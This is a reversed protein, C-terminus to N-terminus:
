KCGVLRVSDSGSVAQGGYTLGTLAVVEEGCQLNTDQTGFHLMLDLDGDGDVDEIHGRGHSEGAEGPGFRVSAPDVTTADFEENSLIAVPINGNSRHNVSNPFTSPKVDVDVLLPAFELSLRIIRFATGSVPAGFLVEDRNAGAWRATTGDGHSWLLDPYRALLRWGRDTDYGYIGGARGVAYVEALGDGNLDGMRVSQLYEGVGSAIQGVDFTGGSLIHVSASSGDWTSVAVDTGPLGDLEGADFDTVSGPLSFVPSSTHDHTGSGPTYTVLELQQSQAAWILSETGDGVFDGVVPNIVPEYNQGGDKIEVGPYSSTAPDWVYRRLHHHPNPFAGYLEVVWVELKGDGNVDGAAQGHWGPWATRGYIDKNEVLTTGSYRHARLWEGTNGVSHETYVLWNQGDNRIPAVFPRAANTISPGPLLTGSDWADDPNQFVAARAPKGKTVVLDPTGDNTVDGATLYLAHVTDPFVSDNEIITEVTVDDEVLRHGSVEIDDLYGNQWEWGGIQDRSVMLYRYENHSGSLTGSQRGLETGDDTRVVTTWSSGNLMFSAQRWTNLAGYNPASEIPNLQLAGDSYKAMVLVRPGWLTDRTVQVIVGTADFPWGTGPNDLDEILGIHVDGNGGASTVNFRFDLQISDSAANIPIFYRRQTNRSVQYALWENSADRHIYGGSEDTWGKDSSFDDFFLLSAHDEAAVVSISLLSIFMMVLLLKVFRKLKHM